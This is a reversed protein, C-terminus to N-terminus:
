LIDSMLFKTVLKSRSRGNSVMHKVFWLSQKLGHTSALARHRQARVRARTGHCVLNGVTARCWGSAGLPGSRQTAASVRHVGNGREKVTGGTCASTQLLNWMCSNDRVSPYKRHGRGETGRAVGVRAAKLKAM